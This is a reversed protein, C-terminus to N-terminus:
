RDLRAVSVNKYIGVLGCVFSFCSFLSSISLYLVIFVCTVISAARIIRTAKDEVKSITVTVSAWTFQMSLQVVPQTLGVRSYKRRLRGYWGNLYIMKLIKYKWCFLRDSAVVFAVFLAVSTFNSFYITFSEVPGTPSVEKM